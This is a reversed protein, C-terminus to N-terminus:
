LLVLTNATRKFLFSKKRIAFLPVSPSPSPGSSTLFEPFHPSLQVVIYNFLWSLKPPGQLHLWLFALVTFTLAIRSNSTITPLLLVKEM